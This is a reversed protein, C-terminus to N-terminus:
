FVYTVSVLNKYPTHKGCLGGGGMSAACRREYNVKAWRIDDRCIRREGRIRLASMGDGVNYVEVALFYSYFVTQKQAASLRTEVL